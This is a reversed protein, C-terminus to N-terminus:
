TARRMSWACEIGAHEERVVLGDENWHLIRPEQTGFLKTTRKERDYELYGEHAGGDCWSKSCRGSEDYVYHVATGNKLTKKVLRHDDDYEYTETHGLADTASALEGMKAYTYDVWQELHEAVWVEVRVIRGGATSKVRIDRGATDIIRSLRDGSYEFTMANGFADHIARLHAPGDPELPRFIRALRTGHNYITFSGDAFAKLTLRDARHFTSHGPAV